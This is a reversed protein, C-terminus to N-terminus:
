VEVGKSIGQKGFSEFLFEKWKRCTKADHFRLSFSELGIKVLLTTEPAEVEDTDYTCNIEQNTFAKTTQTKSDQILLIKYDSFAYVYIEKEDNM